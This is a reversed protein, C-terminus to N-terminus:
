NPKAPNDQRGEKMEARVERELEANWQDNLIQRRIRWRRFNDPVARLWRLAGSSMAFISALSCIAVYGWILSGPMDRLLDQLEGLFDSLGWLFHSDFDFDWFVFEGRPSGGLVILFFMVSAVACILAQKGDTSKRLLQLASVWLVMFVLVVLGMAGAQDWATIVVLAGVFLWCALPLAKATLNKMPLKM